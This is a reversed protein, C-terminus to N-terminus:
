RSWRARGLPLRTGAPLGAMVIPALTFDATLPFYTQQAVIQNATDYVTIEEQWQRVDFGLTPGNVTLRGATINTPGTGTYSLGDSTPDLTFTGHPQPCRRGFNTPTFAPVVPGQYSAPSAFQYTPDWEAAGWTMYTKGDAGCKVGVGAFRGDLGVVDQYHAPSGVLGAVFQGPQMTTAGEVAGGGRMSLTPLRGGNMLAQNAVDIDCSPAGFQLPCGPYDDVDSVMREVWRHEMATVHDSEILPWLGRNTREWNLATIVDDVIAQEEATLVDTPLADFMDGGLGAQDFPITDGDARILIPEDFVGMTPDFVGPTASVPSSVPPVAVVLVAVTGFGAGILAVRRRLSIFSQSM